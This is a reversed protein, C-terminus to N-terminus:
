QLRHCCVLISILELHSNSWHLCFAPRVEEMSSFIVGVVTFALAM